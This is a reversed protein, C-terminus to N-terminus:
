KVYEAAYEGALRGITLLTCLGVGEVNQYAEVSIGSLNNGTVYMGSIIEDM